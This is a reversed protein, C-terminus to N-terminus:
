QIRFSSCDFSPSSSRCRVEPLAESILQTFEKGEAPYKATYAALSAKWEAEVKAGSATKDMTKYVAEPVEFPAFEWKLNERTAAVESAGLAAGHVAHSNQKNPSGYGILTTVQPLRLLGADAVSLRLTISAGHDNLQFGCAAGANLM